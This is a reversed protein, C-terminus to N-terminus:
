NCRRLSSIPPLDWPKSCVMSWYTNQLIPECYFGVYIGSVFDGLTLVIIGTYDIRAWLKSFHASHNIFTHYFASLGFCLSVTCQHFAVILYDGTTAEPYYRSFYEYMFGHGLIALFAPLLHSYINATENHLYTWSEFCTNIDNMVPRYGHRICENDQYWLPIEDYSLLGHDNESKM